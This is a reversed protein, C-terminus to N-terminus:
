LGQSLLNEFSLEIKFIKFTFVSGSFGLLLELELSALEFDLEDLEVELGVDFRSIAAMFVVFVWFGEAPEM